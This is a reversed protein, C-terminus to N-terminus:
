ESSTHPATDAVVVVAAGGGACREAEVGCALMRICARSLSRVHASFPRRALAHSLTSEKKGKMQVIKAM